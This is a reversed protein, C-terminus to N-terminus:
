MGERWTHLTSVARLDDQRVIFLFSLQRLSTTRREMDSNLQCTV